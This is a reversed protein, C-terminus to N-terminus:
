RYIRREIITVRRMMFMEARMSSNLWIGLFRAAASWPGVGAPGVIQVCGDRRRALNLHLLVPYCRLPASVLFAHPHLLQLFAISLVSAFVRLEFEM